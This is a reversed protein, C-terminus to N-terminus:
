FPSDAANDLQTACGRFTRAIPRQSARLVGMLEPAHLDGCADCVLSMTEDLFLDVGSPKTRSGCLACPDNSLVTNLKIALKPGAPWPSRSIWRQIKEILALVDQKKAGETILVRVAYNGTMLEFTPSSMLSHGDLDPASVHDGIFGDIQTFQKPQKRAYHELLDDKTPRKM